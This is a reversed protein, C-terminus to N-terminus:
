WELAEWDWHEFANEGLLLIHETSRVLHKSGTRGVSERERRGGGEFGGEFNLSSVFSTM